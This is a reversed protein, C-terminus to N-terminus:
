QLQLFPMVSPVGSSNVIVLMYYGPPANNASAPARANLKGSGVTFNLDVYRQDFDNAHTTAGPRILAVRTISAADPTTITFEAGYGLSTPASSIVPAAGQFLYPPSFIEITTSQSGSDSGASLVRGDPLLLATSHYTRQASQSAMVTWAGTAPNYLEAQRVPAAYKGTAGGGVALVTGDALLVLNEHKRGYTMSGTYAWTPTSSSFDIIEATATGAGLSTTGGGATFVKQGGPLLVVGGEVRPGFNLNAVFSWTNTAPDFIRTDTAVAAKFIKGNPLVVMRPYFDSDPPMNASSPLSTWVGTTPSYAEMVRQLKTATENYGSLTLTTGDPLEVNSPYWRAYNMPNGQSWMNTSPDFITTSFTGADPGPHPTAMGGSVLVRGDPLVSVGSCFINGEFSPTVDTTTGTVPDYLVAPSHTAPSSPYYWLLVKGTHLLVANIGVVGIDVPSTWSGVQSPSAQESTLAKPALHKSFLLLAWVFVTGALLLAKLVANRRSIMNQM